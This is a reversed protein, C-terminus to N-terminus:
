SQEDDNSWTWGKYQQIKGSKLNHMKVPHLGHERCFEALNTIAVRRGNPDVFGTYTKHEQRTRGNIHTWGRHSCIRSNMVAVMHTNDLGHQRCFEALNTITGVQNGEPDIFGDYVKVYDRQRVSNRHTWGKCSKLKSEGKALRHMSPFDLKHERCFDQLNIITIEKGDPNIFGEWIQANFSGSSEATDRINFGVSKDVCATSDIWEQEAELLNAVDVLELIEFVFQEEGYKDWAHQLYRNGHKHKRLHRRHQDWRKRLNVASGVYIKGTPVCRIQYVGSARPPILIM